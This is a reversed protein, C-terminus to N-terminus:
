GLDIVKYHEIKMIVEIDNETPNIQVDSFKMHPYLVVVSHVLSIIDTIQEEILLSNDMYFVINYTIHPTYSMSTELTPEYTDLLVCLQKPLNKNILNTYVTYGGKRLCEVVESMVTM